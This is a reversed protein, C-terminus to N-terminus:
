LKVNLSTAIGLSFLGTQGVIKDMPPSPIILNM